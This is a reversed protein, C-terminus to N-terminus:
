RREVIKLIEANAQNMAEEPSLEGSNAKSLFIGFANEIENWRPTRPRPRSTELSRLQVPYTPFKAVLEPDNFVSRRTPPNGRLASRKLQEASTVWVLFDFAADANRASRPIAILWNGIEAQGSKKAGPMTTFGIKGIVKSKAPDSFAAIWAPWNISMAATGQLLHASVEDANFSSYGPPASKGLELMFRLASIGEASNVTPRGEADFMEAGFAWFIPMFDAVAANGQAARMVYGYLRGGGPAGQTERETIIRASNLVDDWTAPEKLGHKEFIDKRYFFLQSNGLYPLAYLAGTQYPHRCLALSTQVFDADPGALNKKRYLPTLDTLFGEGSFRPFWPDDLMILDYAGTGATLDVLEKDFLNSYPFEVINIRVGTQAEYDRAAQKLADGEVGANVALTLQKGEGQDQGCSTSLLSVFLISILALAPTKLSLPRKRM